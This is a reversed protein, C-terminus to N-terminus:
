PVRPTLSYMAKFFNGRIYIGKEVCFRMMQNGPGSMLFFSLSLLLGSAGFTLYRWYNTLLVMSLINGVIIYIIM